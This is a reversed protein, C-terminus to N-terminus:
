HNQLMPIADLRRLMTSLCTRFYSHLCTDESAQQAADHFYTNRRIVLTFVEAARICEEFKMLLSDKETTGQVLFLDVHM